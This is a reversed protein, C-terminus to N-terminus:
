RRFVNKVFCNNYMRVTKRSVEEGNFYLILGESQRYTFAINQWQKSWSELSANGWSVSWSQSYDRVEALIADQMCGYM